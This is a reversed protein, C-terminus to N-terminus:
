RCFRGALRAAHRGRAGRVFFGIRFSRRSEKARSSPRKSVRAVVLKFGGRNFPCLNRMRARDRSTGREFYEKDQQYHSEVEACQFAKPWLFRGIGKGGRGSKYQTDSTFFSDFNTDDFGVGNDTVTFDKVEGATDLGDLVTDRGVVIDISPSAASSGAYEIAQLSNVVADFM